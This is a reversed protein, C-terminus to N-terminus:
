KMQLQTFDSSLFRLLMLAFPEVFMNDAPIMKSKCIQGSVFPCRFAPYVGRISMRVRRKVKITRNGIVQNSQGVLGANLEFDFVCM